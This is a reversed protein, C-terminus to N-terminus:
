FTGLYCRTICNVATEGSKDFESFLASLEEVFQAYNPEGERPAHSRSLTEGIFSERDFTRVSKFEVLELEKFYGNLFKEGDSTSRAGAHGTKAYQSDSSYKRCLETQRAALGEKEFSNWIVAVKGSETLIRKCEAKFREEDFWHFAQAATVLGFSKEPLETNEAPANVVTIGGIEALKGRMDPNPEVATIKWPKHLLCRTFKGTGAGIDAVNDCPAKEYLFDILEDPYSPRFKEYLEAKGTFKRENM